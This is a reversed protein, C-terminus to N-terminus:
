KERMTGMKRYAKEFITEPERDHTVKGRVEQEPFIVKKMKKSRVNTGRSM